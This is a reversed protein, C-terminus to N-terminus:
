SNAAVLATIAKVFDKSPSVFAAGVSGAKSAPRRIELKLEPGIQGSPGIIRAKILDGVGLALDTSFSCGGASLDITETSVEAGKDASRSKEVFGRVGVKVKARKGGRRNAHKDPGDALGLRLLGADADAGTKSPMVQTRATLWDYRTCWAVEVEEGDAISSPRPLELVLAAEEDIRRVDITRVRGSSLRMAVNVTPHEGQWPRLVGLPRGGVALPRDTATTDEATEGSAGASEDAAAGAEGDHGPGPRGSPSGAPREPRLRLKGAEPHPRFRPALIRADALVWRRGSEWSITLFKDVGLVSPHQLSLVFAGEQDISRLAVSVLRDDTLQLTIPSGPVPLDGTAQGGPGCMREEDAAYM